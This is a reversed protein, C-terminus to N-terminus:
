GILVGEFKTEDFALGFEMAISELRAKFINNFVIEEGPDYSDHFRQLAGLLFVEAHFYEPFTYKPLISRISTLGNSMDARDMDANYMEDPILCGVACSTGNPGRYLCASDRRSPVGQRLLHHIVTDFIEQANM